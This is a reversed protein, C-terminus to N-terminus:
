ARWNQALDQTIHRLYFAGRKQATALNPAHPLIEGIAAFPTKSKQLHCGGCLAWVPKGHKKALQAVAWPGKGQTSTKDLCGEGTIILDHKDILADLTTWQRFLDFGTVRKAKLFTILGYGCGGAAGAGAEAHASHGLSKKAVEALQKLHQDLRRIQAPSAGKQAAFQFAAGNPGYLPNDVDTAVIFETKIKQTPTIIQALKGLGEGHLPISAGKKDLFKFGLPAALGIGGDTTASGGIGIIIRPCGNAVLKALLTGTGVVTVTGPNRQKFPVRWLGSAETLGVVATGDPLIGYHARCPKGLPDTTKLSAIRGHRANVLTEVFGEGGDSLPLTTIKAKPWVVRLGLAISKAVQASTLSGKFKDPVILVRM